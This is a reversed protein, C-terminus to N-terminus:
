ESGIEEGRRSLSELSGRERERVREKIGVM